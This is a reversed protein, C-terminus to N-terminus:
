RFPLPRRGVGERWVFEGLVLDDPGVVILPHLVKLVPRLAFGSAWISSGAGSARRGGVLRSFALATIVGHLPYRRDYETIGLM